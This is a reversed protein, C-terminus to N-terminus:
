VIRQFVTPDLQWDSTDPGARSEFDAAVNLRGPLHHAEITISHELRWQWRDFTLSSLVLSISDGMKNIHSIASTNDMLLISM